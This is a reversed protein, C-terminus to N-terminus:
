FRKRTYKPWIKRKVNGRQGRRWKKAKPIVDFVSKSLRFFIKKISREIVDLFNKSKQDKLEGGRGEGEGMWRKSEFNELGIGM